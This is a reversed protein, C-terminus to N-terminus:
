HGDVCPNTTFGRLRLILGRDFSSTSATIVVITRTMPGEMRRAVAHSVPALVRVLPSHRSYGGTPRDGDEPNPRTAM